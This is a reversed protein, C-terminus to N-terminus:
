RRQGFHSLTNKRWRRELGRRDCSTWRRPGSGWRPREEPRAVEFMTAHQFAARILPQAEELTESLNETIILENKKKHRRESRGQAFDQLSTERQGMASWRRLPSKTIAKGYFVNVRDVRIRFAVFALM